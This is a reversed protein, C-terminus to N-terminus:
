MLFKVIQRWMFLMMTWERGMFVFIFSSHSLIISFYSVYEKKVTYSLLQYCYFWDTGSGVLFILSQMRGRQCHRDLIALKATMISGHHYWFMKHGDTFVVSSLSHLPAPRLIISFIPVLCRGAGCLIVKLGWFGLLKFHLRQRKRELRQLRIVVRSLV